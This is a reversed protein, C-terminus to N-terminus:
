DLVGNKRLAATTNWYRELSTWLIRDSNDAQQAAKLGLFQALMKFIQELLLIIALIYKILKGPLNLLDSIVAIIKKLIELILGIWSLLPKKQLSDNGLLARTQAIMNRAGATELFGEITERGEPDQNDYMAQFTEALSRAQTALAQRLVDLVAAQEAEGESTLVTHIGGCYEDLLVAFDAYTHRYEPPAEPTGQEAM